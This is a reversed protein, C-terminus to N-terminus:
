DDFLRDFLDDLDDELDDEGDGRAIVIDGIIPLSVGCTQLLPMTAAFSVALTLAKALNRKM